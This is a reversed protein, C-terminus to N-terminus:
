RILLVTGEKVFLQNSIDSIETKYTYYGAPVNVGKLTGDWSKALDDSQFVVQGWRNFVSIKFSTIFLGRIEFTENMNDGNPTFADPILLTANQRYQIINSFSLLNGTKSRGRIQYSNDNAVVNAPDLMFDTNLGVSTLTGSQNQFVDYSDLGEIFSVANNWTLLNPSQKLLISCVPETVDSRLACSNEYSFRYCYSTSATNVGKDEFHLENNKPGSIQVFDSSGETAREVILNYTSTTGKEGPVVDSVIFNDTVSVSANIIKDPKVILIKASAPASFSRVFDTLAVIKYEYTKDCDVDKDTFTLEDISQFSQIPLEDRFLQYGIFVTNFAYKNWDLKIEGEGPTAKLTMTGVERSDKTGGCEDRSSLKFKYEQAPDLQKDIEVTTLGDSSQEIGTEIYSNTGQGYLIKTPVKDVGEYLFIVKGDKQMQVNKIQIAQLSNKGSESLTNVPSACTASGNNKGQITIEPIADPYAYTLIGGGTKWTTQRGDGWNVEIYDYSKAAENDTITLTVYRGCMQLQADVKKTERVTVQKCLTFGVGNKSGGQFITYTGPLNYTVTSINKTNTPQSVGDYNDIFGVVVDSGTVKNQITVTLPACGEYNLLDFDGGGISCYPGQNYVPQALMVFPKFLLGAFCLILLQLRM